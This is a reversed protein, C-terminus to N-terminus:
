VSRPNYKLYYSKDDDFNSQLSTINFFILRTEKSETQDNFNFNTRDTKEFSSCIRRFLTM